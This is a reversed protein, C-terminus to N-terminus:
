LAATIADHHWIFEKPKKSFQLIFHEFACGGKGKNLRSEAEFWQDGLKYLVLGLCLSALVLM